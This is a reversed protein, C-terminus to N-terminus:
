LILSDDCLHAHEKGTMPNGGDALLPVILYSYLTLMAVMVGTVIVGDHTIVYSESVLM